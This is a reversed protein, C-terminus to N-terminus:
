ENEGELAATIARMYDDASPERILDGIDTIPVQENHQEISRHRGVLQLVAELAKVMRPVSDIFADLAVIVQKSSKITWNGSAHAFIETSDAEAADALRGQEALFEHATM